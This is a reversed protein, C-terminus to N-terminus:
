HSVDDGCIAVQQRVGEMGLLNHYRTLTEVISHGSRLMVSSDAVGAEILFQVMSAMLGHNTVYDNM